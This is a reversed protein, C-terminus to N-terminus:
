MGRCWPNRLLIWFLAILYLNRQHHDWPVLHNQRYSSWLNFKTWNEHGQWWLLVRIKPSKHLSYEQRPASTPASVTWNSKSWFSLPSEGGLLLFRPFFPLDMKLENSQWFGPSSGENEVDLVVAGNSKSDNSIRSSSEPSVCSYTSSNWQQLSAKTLAGM